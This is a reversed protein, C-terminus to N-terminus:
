TIRHWIWRHWLNLTSLNNNQQKQKRMWSNLFSSIWITIWSKRVFLSEQAELSLCIRLEYIWNQHFLNSPLKENELWTTECKWSKDRSARLKFSFNRIFYTYIMSNITAWREGVYCIGLQRDNNYHNDHLNIADIWSDNTSSWLLLLGSNLDLIFCIVIFNGNRESRKVVKKM